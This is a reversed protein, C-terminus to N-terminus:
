AEMELIGGTAAALRGATGAATISIDDPGADRGPMAASALPRPVGTVKPLRDETAPLDTTEQKVGYM